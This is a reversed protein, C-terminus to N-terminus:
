KIIKKSLIWGIPTLLLFLLDFNCGRFSKKWSEKNIFTFRALQIMTRYKMIGKLKYKSILSYNLLSGKPNLLMLKRYKNSLGNAQYEVVEHISNIFKMKYDLGIKAYLISETMFKESEYVPFRYKKLVETNFMIGKDGKVHHKYYIDILNSDMEDNPFKTGIMGGSKNRSLYCIGAYDNNDLRDWYEVLRALSNKEYTDDSDICIFLDGTAQEIAKNYAVHKGQNTQYFYKIKLSSQKEFSNIVEKTNDSSGDDVIIWELNGYNEEILYNYLNPLLHARNYTPTFITIKKM